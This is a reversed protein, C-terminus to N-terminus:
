DTGGLKTLTAGAALLLPVNFVSMCACSQYTALLRGCSPASSLPLSSQARKIWTPLSFLEREPMEKALELCYLPAISLSFLNTGYGTWRQGMDPPLM